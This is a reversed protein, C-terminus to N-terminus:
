APRAPSALLQRVIEGLRMFDDLRSPKRFYATAGLQATQERDKPSDSSSLIVVPVDRCRRSQRMHELVQAGSKKPLNLDLLLLHPCAGAEGADVEDIYEVGREGDRLVQLHYDVGGSTLAERVLFVDPEADEVLVIQFPPTL